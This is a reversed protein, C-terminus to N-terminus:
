TARIAGLIRNIEDRINKLKDFVDGYSARSDEPVVVRKLMPNFNIGLSQITRQCEFQEDYLTQLRTRQELSIDAIGGLELQAGRSM